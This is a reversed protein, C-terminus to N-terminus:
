VEERSFADCIDDVDWLRSWKSPEGPYEERVITWGMQQILDHMQIVNNVITVLCRDQLVKIGCTAYLNCADLIRLVSDKRGWKFFCAIDLFVEKEHRGLGDFSIRLVDNIKQMLHKKLKDLANKWEDITMGLLYSGLVKLALPLGKAYKVMDKSLHIYDEHPVGQKFAHRNFLQLAEEYRLKTVEHLASVDYEHLLHQNRTTIIIRSGPGFWTLSGVLPKLQELDDVDDIVVLIKKSGLRSQIRNIGENVNSFEVDKGVIDHLLQQQLQLQCGKKSKERVDQLFSAGTFQCRIENYVIKAITTKGIGGIGYIGVARIDNLHTSLLSKLENLHFDIGIPEDEIYLQKPNLRESIQYFIEKIHKSEYRGM